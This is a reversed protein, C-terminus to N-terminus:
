KEMDLKLEFIMGYDAKTEGQTLMNLGCRTTWLEM